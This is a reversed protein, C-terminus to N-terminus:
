PLQHSPCGLLFTRLPVERKAAPKRCAADGGSCAGWQDPWGDWEGGCDRGFLQGSLARSFGPRPFCPCGSDAAFCWSTRRRRGQRPWSCSGRAPPPRRASSASPQLRPPAAITRASSCAEGRASVRMRTYKPWDRRRLSAGPPRRASREMRDKHADQPARALCCRGRSLFPEPQRRSPKRNRNFTTRQGTATV